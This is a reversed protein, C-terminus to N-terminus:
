CCAMIKLLNEFIKIEVKLVSMQRDCLLFFGGKPSKKGM